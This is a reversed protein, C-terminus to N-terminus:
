FRGSALEFFINEFRYRGVGGTGFQYAIYLSMEHDAGGEDSYFSYEAGFFGLGVWLSTGFGFGEEGYFGGASGGALSAFAFKPFVEVKPNEGIKARIGLGPFLARNELRNIGFYRSLNFGLNGLDWSERRDIQLSFVDMCTLENKMPMANSVLFLPLFCLLKSSDM